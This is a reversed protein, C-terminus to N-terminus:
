VASQIFLVCVKLWSKVSNTFAKLTPASQRSAGVKEVVIEVKKLCSGGFAFQNLIGGLSAQSMHSVYIKSKLHFGQGHEDWNFISTSFGQLM